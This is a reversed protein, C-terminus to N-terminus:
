AMKVDDIVDADEIKLERTLELSSRRANPGNETETTKGARAFRDIEIEHFFQRTHVGLSNFTTRSGLTDTRM